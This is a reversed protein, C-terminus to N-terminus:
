KGLERIRQMAEFSRISETTRNGRYDENANKSLAEWAISLARILRVDPRKGIVADSWVIKAAAKQMWEPLESNNPHTM